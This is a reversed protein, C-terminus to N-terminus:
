EEFPPLRGPHLLLLYGQEKGLLGEEEWARLQRNVKERSAGILASLDKQSLKFEIRVAQGAGARAAPKGYQGALRKLLRGLRSELDMLAMEEVAANARRLRRCLVAILQQSMEPRERLLRQFRARELVLVACEELAVADASRPEGDLLAMEGLIDGPGLIGLTVERGDESTLGVRVRGALLIMMSAGPDGRRLVTTAHEFRRTVTQALVADLDAPDLSAFLECRRLVERPQAPADVTM